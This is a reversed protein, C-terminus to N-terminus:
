QKEHFVENEQILQIAVFLIRNQFFHLQSLLRKLLYITDSFWRSATLVSASIHTQVPAPEQDSYDNANNGHYGIIVYCNSNRDVAYSTIIKIQSKAM